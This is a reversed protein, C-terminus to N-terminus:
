ELGSIDCDDKIDDDDGEPNKHYIIEQNIIEWDEEEETKTEFRNCIIIDYDSDSDSIIEEGPTITCYKCSIKYSEIDKNKPIPEMKLYYREWKQNPKISVKNDKHETIADLKALAPSGMIIGSSGLNRVLFKTKETYGQWDVKVDAMKNLITKSGKIATHLTIPKIDKTPINYTDCVEFSMLNAGETCEDLLVPMPINNIKLMTLM